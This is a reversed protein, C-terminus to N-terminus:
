AFTEWGEVNAVYLIFYLLLCLYNRRSYEDLVNSNFACCSEFHLLFFCTVPHLFSFFFGLYFQRNHNSEFTDSFHAHLYHVTDTLIYEHVMRDFMSLIVQISTFFSPHPHPHHPVTKTMQTNRTRRM